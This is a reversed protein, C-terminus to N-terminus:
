DFLETRADLYRKINQGAAVILQEPTAERVLHLKDEYPLTSEKILAELVCEMAWYIPANPPYDQCMTHIPSNRPTIVGIIAENLILTNHTIVLGKVNYNLESAELPTYSKFHRSIALM